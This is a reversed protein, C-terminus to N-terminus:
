RAGGRGRGRGRRGRRGVPVSAREAVVAADSEAMEEIVMKEETGEDVEMKEADQLDAVKEDPDAMSRSGRKKPTLCYAHDTFSPEAEFELEDGQPGCLYSFM